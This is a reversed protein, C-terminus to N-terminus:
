CGRGCRSPNTLPNQVSTVNLGESQLLSNNGVLLLRRCVPWPRSRHKEGQRRERRPAGKPLLSVAASSALTGCFMRRTMPQM